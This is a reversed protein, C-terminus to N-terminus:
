NNTQPENVYGTATTFKKNGLFEMQMLCSTGVLTAYGRVYINAGLAISTVTPLNFDIIQPDGGNNNATTIQTFTAGTIDIPSTFASDASAQVKVDLSTFSSVAGVTLKASMLDSGVQSADVAIGAGTSTFSQPRFTDAVFCNQSLAQFSNAM